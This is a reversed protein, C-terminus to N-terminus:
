PNPYEAVSRTLVTYTVPKGTTRTTVSGSELTIPRERYQGSSASPIRRPSNSFDKPLLTKWSLYGMFDPLDEVKQFDSLDEPLFDAHDPEEIDDFDRDIDPVERYVPCRSALRAMRDREDPSDGTPESSELWFRGYRHNCDWSEPCSRLAPKALDDEPLGRYDHFFACRDCSPAPRYSM